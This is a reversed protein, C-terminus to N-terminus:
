KQGDKNRESLYEKLREEIFGEMMPKFHVTLSKELRNRMYGVFGRLEGEVMETYLTVLDNICGNELEQFVAGDQYKQVTKRIKKKIEDQIM